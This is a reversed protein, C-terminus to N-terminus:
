RTVAVADVYQRMLRQAKGFHDFAVAEGIAYRRVILDLEAWVSM